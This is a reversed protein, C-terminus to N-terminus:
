ATYLNKSYTYERIFGLGHFNISAFIRGPVTESGIDSRCGDVPDWFGDLVNDCEYQRICSCLIHALYFLQRNSRRSGRFYFEKAQTSKM